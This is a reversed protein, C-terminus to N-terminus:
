RAGADSGSATAPATAGGATADELFRATRTLLEIKTESRDVTHGENAALMYEVPVGRRRLALVIADSESRPVRPDREGAYVFLPAVIADVDRMPSFRDLLDADKELDGFESVFADRIGADTTRLFSKLDAPGYLDVGARWLTPQRTLAMLTTYGGYSQGWVVVRGEDCWPQAKTWANISELDKLWDGRKERDDANEYARGFGTSGRVNPELVAYGLSVFFRAYPNWRIAYSSAPGGHFIVLTPLKRPVDLKPLYLNVPIQLGDFAPVSTLASQIPPLAEVGPRPDERLPKVDGSAPEVAYIDAPRDPQSALISFAKGDDRWTGLLVDGLPVTVDRQLKLTRGDLVRVEGHNGCDALVAIRDGSPSPRASLTATRPQTNTYRALERGSANSARSSLDLLLVVSTEGGEDTALVVRKGGAMYAASAVSAHKGELPYVRTAKGTGTDVEDVVANKADGAEYALFLLRKGDDTVDALGGTRPTRYLLRPPSPPPSPPAATSGADAGLRQAFVLTEVRATSRADYVLTDPAARPLLPEGRSLPEAEGASLDVLGSGDLAVRLLHHQEDGKRDRLFVISKGDRTYSAWIAREPGTTVARPPDGPKTPDGEYIEPLGDRTSGFLVHKGDPSFNAVLSSFFGDWNPYASVITTALPVRAGDRQKQADSLVTPQADVPRTATAAASAGAEPAAPPAASRPPPVAPAPSPEGGCSAAAALGAGIAATRLRRAAWGLGTRTRAHMPPITRGPPGGAFFRERLM